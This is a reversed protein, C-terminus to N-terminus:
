ASEGEQPAPLYRLAFAVRGPGRELPALALGTRASMAHKATLVFAVPFSLRCSSWIFVSPPQGETEWAVLSERGREDLSIQAEAVARAAATM